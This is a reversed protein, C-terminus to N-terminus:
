ADRRKAQLRRAVTCRTRSRTTAHEASTSAARIPPEMAADAFSSGGVVGVVPTRRLVVLAGGPGVVVAGGTVENGGGVTAGGV